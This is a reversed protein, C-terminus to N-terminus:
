KTENNDIIANDPKTDIFDSATVGLAKAIAIADAKDIGIVSYSVNLFISGNADCYSVDQDSFEYESIDFAKRPMPQIESEDFYGDMEIPNESRDIMGGTILKENDIDLYAVNGFAMFAYHKFGDPAINLEEQTLQRQKM